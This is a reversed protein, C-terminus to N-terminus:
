QGGIAAIEKKLQAIQADIRKKEASGFFGLKSRKAMLEDIEAKKKGILIERQREEGSSEEVLAERRRIVGELSGSDSLIKWGETEYSLYGTVLVRGDACLGMTFDNGASVAIINEWSSVKCADANGGVAEVTGDKKLMVAHDDGAAIAKIDKFGSVDFYPKDGSKTCVVSGDTKLGLTFSGGAAVASIDRWHFVNCCGTSKQGTALATGNSRLAVTHCKGASVAVVNKWSGVNCQDSTNDGAAIVTGDGKLAVLHDEGAALSKVGVWSSVEAKKVYLEPTHTRVYVTGDARVAATFFSGAAIEIVDVWNAPWNEATISVGNDGAMLLTNEGRSCDIAFCVSNGASILKATAQVTKEEATPKRETPGSRREEAPRDAGDSSETQATLNEIMQGLVDDACATAPAEEQSASASLIDIMDRLASDASATPAPAVPNGSLIDMMRSLEDDASETAAPAPPPTRAASAESEAMMESIFDLLVDNSM